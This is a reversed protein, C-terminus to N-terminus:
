PLAEDAVALPLLRSAGFVCTFTSGVGVESEIELRAQHLNLVHKASSLGLGTGGTARSRSTSVRYFRETIRPLHEPPIGQGTDAVVFRGGRGDATWALTIRGGAPTYRVANSVLNSFASHLYQNSGRLDATACPGAVVQHRGQSLGEAERKLNALMARMSVREEPLVHQAELRSLTLLDEVIQAMRKSQSRLDELMPAWEPADGPELMDLYGHLVTLPTRLEHSVNAVFDRRVQELHMVNSIDRVVLLAQDRAYPIYRLSLRRSADGPAPVDLLPEAPRSDIWARAGADPLFDDVLSGRDRPTQIRLLRRAAENSWLVTRGGSLVVVGDPLAAAGERFARLLAVLRRKRSRETRLKRYVFASVDSWVGWDEPPPSRRRSSLWHQIRYLSYFSWACYALLAVLTAELPLGVAFGVLLASALLVGFRGLSVQWAHSHLFEFRM